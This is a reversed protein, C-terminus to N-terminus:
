KWFGAICQCSAGGGSMKQALFRMRQEKSAEALFENEEKLRRNERELVNMQQRLATMEEALSMAENPTRSGPGAELRGERLAKMWGYLTGKPM